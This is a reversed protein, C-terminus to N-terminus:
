KNIRAPSAFCKSDILIVHTGNQQGLRVQDLSLFVKSPLSLLKSAPSGAQHLPGVTPGQFSGHTQTRPATQSMQDISPPWPTLISLTCLRQPLSVFPAQFECLVLDLVPIAWRLSVPFGPRSPGGVCLPGGLHPGYPLRTQRSSVQFGPNIDAGWPIRVWPVM